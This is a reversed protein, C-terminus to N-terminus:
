FQLGYRFSPIIWGLGVEQIDSPDQPTTYVFIPNKRAYANYVGFSLQHRWQKNSWNFNVTVDLRHLPRMQFANTPQSSQSSISQFADSLNEPFSNELSPLNTWQGSGYQWIAQVNFKSSITQHIGVKIHHRRNYRFPFKLGNNITPFQRESWALNYHIWGTTKGLNKAISTEIGYTWGKGVAVASEWDFTVETPEELLFDTEDQYVILNNLKKYYGEVSWTIDKSLQWKWGLDTQWSFAPEVRDTSPVWLDNPIFSTSSQLVHLFQQMHNISWQFKLKQTAQYQLALRPQLSPYVKNPTIFATAHVGYHTSWKPSIQWQDELYANLETALFNTNLLTTDEELEENEFDFISEQEFENSIVTPKFNRVLIGVGIKLIHKNNPIFDIDTKWGIDKINSRFRYSTVASFDDPSDEGLSSSPFYISSGLRNTFDFESYTFTMNSFLQNHWIHNWRLALITNGWNYNLYNTQESEESELECDETECDENEIESKNSIADGGKYFSLYIRDKDSLRHHLKINTDYFYYRTSGEVSTARRRAAIGNILPDIHTRRVSVLFGTQDKIIPGEVFLSTALLGMSLGGHYKKLSGEKTRIDVVSSLRGSYRAPFSGKHLTASKITQTNFISFLGLSHSPNYVPVGDLYVLNQSDEGGRVQMGGFGDSGNQVGPLTQFYRFVEPEGGLSPFQTLQSLSPAKSEGINSAAQMKSDSVIIEELTISANLGITLELDKRISLQYDKSQFGLYSFSLTADGRPISFSYFGYENTITGKGTQKDYITAAVLREGSLSDEVFGSITFFPTPLAKLYISNKEQYFTYDTHRLCITLFYQLTQYQPPINVRQNKSFYNSNFAINCNAKESMQLLADEISLNNAQFNFKRELLTQGFNQHYLFLFIIPILIRM